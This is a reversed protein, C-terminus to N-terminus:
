STGACSSRSGSATACRGSSATTSPRSSPPSRTPSQSSKRCRLCHLQGNRPPCPHSWFATEVLHSSRASSGAVRLRGRPRVGAADRGGHGGWTSSSTAGTEAIANDVIQELEDDEIPDPMFEEIIRAGRRRTQRSTGAPRAFRTPQRPRRKRERQLVQLEEDEQASAPAGKGGVPAFGADASRGRASATARVCRM